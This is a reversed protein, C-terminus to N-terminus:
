SNLHLLLLAPFRQFDADFSVLRCGTTIAFAALYADTWLRNPFDATDSLLTADVNPSHGWIERGGTRGVARGVANM